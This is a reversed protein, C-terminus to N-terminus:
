VYTRGRLFLAAYMAPFYRGLLQKGRYAVARKASLDIYSRVRRVEAFTAIAQQRLRAITDRECPLYRKCLGCADFLRNCYVRRAVDELERDGAQSMCAVGERWADLADLRKLSFADRMMSDPSQYYAYLRADSIVVKAASYLLRHSVFVDEITKGEPFRLGVWLSARCLKGCVPSLQQAAKGFHRLEAERGTICEYRSAASFGGEGLNGEADILQRSIAIDAGYLLCASLGHEVFNESFYDDADLFTVWQGRANDLGTNRAASSGGNARHFAEVQPHKAAFADCMEGSGDTSGDDVLIIQLERHTQGLASNLCRELYDRRNYVPVIISVLEDMQEKM